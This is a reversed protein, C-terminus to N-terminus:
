NEIEIYNKLDLLQPELEYYLIDALLTTDKEELAQVALTLKHLFETENFMIENGQSKLLFITTVIQSIEGILEAFDSYGESENQQYLKVAVAKLDKAIVRVSRKLEEM